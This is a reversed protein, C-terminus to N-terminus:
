EKRDLRDEPLDIEQLNIEPLDIEPRRGEYKEKYKRVHGKPYKVRLGRGFVWVKEIERTNGRTKGLYYGFVRKKRQKKKLIPYLWKIESRM